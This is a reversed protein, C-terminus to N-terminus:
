VYGQAYEQMTNLKALGPTWPLTFYKFKKNHPNQRHSAAAVLVCGGVGAKPGWARRMLQLM